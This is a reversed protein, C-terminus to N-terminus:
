SEAYPATHIRVEDVDAEFLALPADGAAFPHVRLRLECLGGDLVLTLVARGERALNAATTTRAVLAFRLRQPSVALVEGASLLAAHPWGAADVTALRLAQTKHRLDTGDLYRQLAPPLERGAPQPPTYAPEVDNM